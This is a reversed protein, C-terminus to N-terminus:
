GIIRDTEIAENTVCVLQLQLLATTINLPKVACYSFLSCQMRYKDKLIIYFPLCYGDCTTISYAGLQILESQVFLKIADRAMLMVNCDETDEGQAAFRGNACLHSSDCADTHM